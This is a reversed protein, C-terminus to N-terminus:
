RCALSGWVGIKPRIKAEAENIWTGLTFTNTMWDNDSEKCGWSSYGALSRQGCFEGTFFALTPPWERRWPIKWVWPDFEPRRCQLIKVTQAVM